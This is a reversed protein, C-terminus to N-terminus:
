KIRRTIKYDRFCFGHSHIVSETPETRYGSRSERGYLSIFILRIMDRRSALEIESAMVCERGNLLEKVFREINKRTFRNRNKESVALRRQEREEDSFELSHYVEEIDSMRKSIPITKLSEGSLFGQPFINFIKCVDEDVDEALGANEERDFVEAMMQLITSIKGEINNSNMLLFKAREMANRLYKSHKKDIEKIIDDYSRFHDIIDAIISLVQEEAAMFDSENEINQYGAVTRKLLEADNQISQLRGIIVGRFRSVNDSTKIRHYAKSGIEEHYKFFDQIIEESTKEATIEEIYKKIGTNLQKLGTFLSLTRDYVPKLVQPYPRNLLEENTMLSYIASIESQYEMEGNQSINKLTQVMTVAYGPMVIRVTQDNETEYEIWGFEKLKRLFRQAKERSDKIGEADDELRIESVESKDFYDTLKSVLVERDTGYSLETRYSDYILFLCDLYVSKFQSILPKFFNEGVIQFLLEM